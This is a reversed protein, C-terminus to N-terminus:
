TQAHFLNKPQIVCFLCEFAYGGSASNYETNKFAKLIISNKILGNFEYSIFHKIHKEQFHFNNFFKFYEVIFVVASHLNETYLLKSM